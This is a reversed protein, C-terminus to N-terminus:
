ARAVWGRWSLAAYFLDIERFGAETLLEVEREPSVMETKGTLSARARALMDDAAGARRGQEVFRAAHREFDLTGGPNCNDVLIFAGGPKLRARIAKLAELKDGNDAVFHLTRLCTAGDYPGDPADPIYGEVWEIQNSVEGLAERGAALMEASPDVGTFAWGPAHAAFVGLEMGGGAGLVLVRGDEPVTEDLLQLTLAHMMPSGPLFM